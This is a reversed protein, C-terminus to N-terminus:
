TDIPKDRVLHSKRVTMKIPRKFAFFFLSLFQGWVSIEKVDQLELSQPNISFCCTVGMLLRKLKTCLTLKGTVINTVLIM